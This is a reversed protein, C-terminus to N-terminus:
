HRHGWLLFADRDEVALTVRRGFPLTVKTPVHGFPLGRLIPVTLQEGLWGIVTDLKFGRDNPLLKYNTFHGLIIAQQQALVGAHLLQSLMREIRYPHEAVDELFLVGGQVQPFYPTGLLSALMSLNGGWLVADQIHIDSEERASVPEAAISEIADEATVVLKSGASLRPGPTRATTRPLRWGAGEGQGTIMDDFCAEMIDDPQPQVGFDELAPGSWSSAGTQAFLALQLATFDSYGVFQTGREIAQAIAQHPLEPLLRGLGYGGRSIMAVDAGSAVARQVSALRTPDSGAFRQQVALADPDVEVEYGLQQLRKVGRRFAPRNRVAGSPSYIYIHKKVRGLIGNAQRGLSGCRLPEPGQGTKLHPM